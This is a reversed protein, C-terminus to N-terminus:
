REKAAICSSTDTSFGSLRSVGVKYGRHRRGLAPVRRELLRCLGGEPM